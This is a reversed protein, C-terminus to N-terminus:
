GGSVIPIVEIEDGDALCEEEPVIEGNKRVAVVEPNYGLEKLLDAVTDTSARELERSEGKGAIKVTVKVAGM